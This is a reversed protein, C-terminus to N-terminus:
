TLPPLHLTNQKQLHLQLLKEYLLFEHYDILNRSLAFKWLRACEGPKRFHQTDAPSLYEGKTYLWPIVHLATLVKKSSNLEALLVQPM